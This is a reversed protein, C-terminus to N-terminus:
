IDIYAEFKKVILGFVIIATCSLISLALMAATKMYCKIAFWPGPVFGNIHCIRFAKLSTYQSFNQFLRAVIYLRCFMIVAILDDYTLIYTSDNNVAHFYMFSGVPMHIVNIICEIYFRFSLQSTFINAITLYHKSKYYVFKRLKMSSLTYHYHVYM